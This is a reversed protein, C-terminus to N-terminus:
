HNMDKKDSMDYLTDIKKDMEDRLFTGNLQENTNWNIRTM